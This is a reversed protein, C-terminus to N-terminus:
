AVNKQADASPLLEKADCVCKGCKTGVSLQKALDRMSTAGAGVAEKIQKDNVAHCICVYM